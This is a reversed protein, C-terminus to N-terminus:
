EEEKSNLLMKILFNIESSVSGFAYSHPNQLSKGKYSNIYNEARKRTLGIYFDKGSGMLFQKETCGTIKEYGGCEYESLVWEDFDLFGGNALYINYNEEEIVELEEYTYKCEGDSYYIEEGRDDPRPEFADHEITILYPTRQFKEEEYEQEITSKLKEYREFQEDTLEITIKKM